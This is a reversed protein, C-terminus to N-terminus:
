LHEETLRALIQTTSTLIKDVLTQDIGRWCNQLIQVRMEDAPEPLTLKKIPSEPYKTQAEKKISAYNRALCAKQIAKFYEHYESETDVLERAIMNTLYFLKAEDSAEENFAYFLLTFRLAECQSLPLLRMTRAMKKLLPFTSLPDAKFYRFVEDDNSQSKLAVFSNITFFLKYADSESIIDQEVTVQETESQPLVDYAPINVFTKDGAAKKPQIDFDNRIIGALFSKSVETISRNRKKQTSIIEGAQGAEIAFFSFLLIFLMYKKLM